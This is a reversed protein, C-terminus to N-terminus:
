GLLNNYSSSSDTLQNHFDPSLSVSISDPNSSLKTKMELMLKETENKDNLIHSMYCEIMFTYLKEPNSEIPPIYHPQVVFINDYKITRPQYLQSIDSTVPPPIYKPKHIKNYYEIIEKQRLSWLTTSILQNKFNDPSVSNSNGM